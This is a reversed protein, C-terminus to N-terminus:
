EEELTAAQVSDLFFKQPGQLPVLHTAHTPELFDHRMSWVDAYCLRGLVGSGSGEHLLGMRSGSPPVLFGNTSSPCRIPALIAAHGTRSSLLQPFPRHLRFHPCPLPLGPSLVILLCCGCVDSFSLQVCRMQEGADSWRAWTSSLPMDVYPGASVVVRSSSDWHSETPPLGAQCGPGRQQATPIRSGCRSRTASRARRSSRTASGPM